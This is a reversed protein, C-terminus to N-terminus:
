PLLPPSPQSPTVSLCWAVVLVVLVVLRKGDFGGSPQAGCYCDVIWVGGSDALNEVVGSSSKGISFATSQTTSVRSMYWIHVLFYMSSPCLVAEVFDRSFVRHFNMFNLFIVYSSQAAKANWILIENYIVRKRLFSNELIRGSQNIGLVRFCPSTMVKNQLPLLYIFLM